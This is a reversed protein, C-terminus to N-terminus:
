DALRPISIKLKEFKLGWNWFQQDGIQTDNGGNREGVGEGNVQEGEDGNAMIIQKKRITGSLPVIATPTIM